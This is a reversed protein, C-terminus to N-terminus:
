EKIKCIDMIRWEVSGTGSFYHVVPSILIDVETNLFDLYEKPARYKSIMATHEDKDQIILNLVDRRETYSVVKVNSLKFILEPNESGLPEFNELFLILRVDYMQIMDVDADILITAASSINADQAVQDFADQFAALQPSTLQVGAAATHGGFGQLHQKCKGLAGHLDFDGVSRGSGKIVGNEDTLILTPKYFKEAMRAAVIGLVGSHWGAKYLVLSNPHQKLYEAAMYEAEECIQNEIIKRDSNLFKLENAALLSKTYNASDDTSMLLLKVGAEPHGMRGAANLKPVVSYALFTSTINQNRRAGCMTLLARLGAHSTTCLESIGFLAYSQISKNLPIVDSIIGMAVLCLGFRNFDMCSLKRSPDIELMKETVAKAVLFAVLVGPAMYIDQTPDSFVKPNVITTKPLDGNPLHHDTVIVEYGLAILEDIEKANGIGNDVTIILAGPAVKKQITQIDLGYGQELRNPIAWSIQNTFISLGLVMVATSTMGDVDYDGWILIHKGALIYEVITKIAASYVDPTTTSFKRIHNGSVQFNRNCLIDKIIPLQTILGKENTILEEVATSITESLPKRYEWNCEASM